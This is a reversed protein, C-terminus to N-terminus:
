RVRYCILCSLFISKELCWELRQEAFVALWFVFWSSQCGKKVIVNEVMRSACGLAPLTLDEGSPEGGDSSKWIWNYLCRRKSRYKLFCFLLGSVPLLIWLTYRCCFIRIWFVYVVNVVWYFVELIHLLDSCVNWLLRLFPWCTFLFISLIMVWWPFAFLLWFLTLNCVWSIVLILFVYM